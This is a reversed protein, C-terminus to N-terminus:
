AALQLTQKVRGALESVSYPKPLLPAKGEAPFLEFVSGMSDGAFGSVYLVPPMGEEFAERMMTVFEPGTCNPMIVDTCILDIEGAHESFVKIAEIGNDATLLQYGLRSLALFAIRQVVPDDDVLLITKSASPKSLPTPETNANM